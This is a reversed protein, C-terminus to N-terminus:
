EPQSDNMESLYEAHRWPFNFDIPFLGNEEATERSIKVECFFNM